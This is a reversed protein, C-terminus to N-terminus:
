FDPHFVDRLGAYTAQSGIGVFGLEMEDVPYGMLYDRTMRWSDIGYDRLALYAGMQACLEKYPVSPAPWSAVGVVHAIEHVLVPLAARDPLDPSVWISGDPLSYGPAANDKLAGARDRSVRMGAATAHAIFEALLASIDTGKPYRVSRAAKVTAEYDTDARFESVAGDDVDSIWRVFKMWAEGTPFALSLRENANM